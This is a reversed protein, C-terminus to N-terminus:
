DVIWNVTEYQDLDLSLSIDEAYFNTLKTLSGTRLRELILGFLQTKLIKGKHRLRVYQVVVAFTENEGKAIYPHLSVWYRENYESPHETVFSTPLTTVGKRYKPPFLLAPVVQLTDTGGALASSSILYASPICVQGTPLVTWSFVSRHTKPPICTKQERFARYHDMYYIQRTDFPLLSGYQLSGAIGEIDQKSLAGFFDGPIQRCLEQVFRLPYKGLVLDQEMSSRFVSGQDPQVSDLPETYWETVGLASMIAEARREKCERRDGLAILSIPDLDLLKELGSRYRWTDLELLSEHSKSYFVTYSSIKTTDRFTKYITILGILPLPIVGDCTVYSWDSACLWVDPRMAVEQLTWLSTFWANPESNKSSLKGHRPELLGTQKWALSEWIEGIMNQCAIPEDISHLLLHLLQWKVLQQLGDFSKVDNFWAVANKANKFIAAQRAIERAGRISGDQPICFLDFWVYRTNTPIRALQCPLYEVDFRDNQPVKWPIGAVKVPQDKVWRGWTHSIVTYDPRFGISVTRVTCNEDTDFLFYPLGDFGHQTPTELWHCPNLIPGRSLFNDFPNGSLRAEIDTFFSPVRAKQFGDDELPNGDGSGKHAEYVKWAMKQCYAWRLGDHRADRRLFVAIEESGPESSYDFIFECAFLRGLTEHYRWKSLEVASSKTIDGTPWRKLQLHRLVARWSDRLQECPYLAAEFNSCHEIIELIAAQSLRPEQYSATWWEYLLLLVHEQQNSMVARILSGSPHDTTLVHNLRYWNALGRTHGSNDDSLIQAPVQGLVNEVLAGLSWHEQPTSM